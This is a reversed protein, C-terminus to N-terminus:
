DIREFTKDLSSLIENNLLTPADTAWLYDLHNFKPDPIRYTETTSPLMRELRLVDEESSLLDNQSWFLKIPLKVKALDYEPPTADGYIRMNNWVGYDFQQFRDRALILQAFHVITKWSTGAGVGALFVPLVTENLQGENEGCMQFIATKCVKGDIRDAHCSSTLKGLLSDKPLFEHSGYLMEMHAVNSALPALSKIPSRIGSMFVVPALAYGASLVQNYEPRLALMAFLITTGMSHGIYTIKTDRGKLDTIYDLIAPIDHQAVDHWSFNWYAKSNTRWNAHEKSYKSGRVNSMWVDYGADALVYALAKGPGNMIWDASSAFLGHQLLITKYSIEKTTKSHPIRHLSLIYGNSAVTHTECRYGHRVIRAPVALEADPNELESAADETPVYSLTDALQRGRGKMKEFYGNVETSIKNQQEELYSNITDKIKVARGYSSTFAGEMDSSTQELFGFFSNTRDFPGNLTRIPPFSTAAIALILLISSTYM